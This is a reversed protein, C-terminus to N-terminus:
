QKLSVPPPFVVRISKRVSAFPALGQVQDSRM